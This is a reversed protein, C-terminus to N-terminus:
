GETPDILRKWWGRRRPKKEDQSPDKANEKRTEDRKVDNEKFPPSHEVTPSSPPAKEGHQTESAEQEKTEQPFQNRRRRQNRFRRDRRRPTRISSDTGEAVVEETTPEKVPEEPLAQNSNVMFQSAIEQEILETVGKGQSRKKRREKRRQNRKKLREAEKSQAEEDTETIIQLKEEEEIIEDEIIEDEIVVPEQEIVRAVRQGNKEIRFAPMVLHDDRLVYIIMGYCHEITQIASRKQNLLYLDIGPPVIVNVQAATGYIGEQEIARIVHLSMSETTRVYGIGHCHKCLITNAEMLSPRLRQRSLELLGFQSIKGIQIRARDRELADKLRKEVANIHRSENMDIFDVVILGALDRLRLQRAVEDAAELNTKFATDDIHRERTAKGSNVDIAVLAETPNIVLSGGSPLSVVPDMMEDIQEAVAFKHFLPINPDKYHRIKKTHSPLMSKMFIKADKYADDGQVLIEEIDRSYIDRISRKVLDGEAYVISPAISKLTADRIDHWLRLLYDYDRKIESRNRTQGATRVILSYGDPIELDELVSKLRKRDEQDNIKRSIGGSRKHANPMLVCYRGPLSLYTTLAAGKNGREEKVVQVLMIQRRKVVEQIKYRYSRHFTRRSDVHHEEEGLDDETLNSPEHTETGEEHSDLVEEQHHHEEEIAHSVADRDDVPIQYYDPHIESFPLFGHRNGGYDVFAAQLSPEVRIVKALYINSKIQKKNITESDFEELKDGDVVAVRVEEAYTADILMRKSM